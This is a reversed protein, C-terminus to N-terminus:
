TTLHLHLMGMAISARVTLVPGTAELAASTWYGGERTTFGDATQLYGLTTEAFIRAATTAPVSLDVSTMGASLRVKGDRRLAGGFDCKFTAAGGDLTMEAFNANALGQLEIAGAGADVDLLEMLQPNPELFRVAHRGAGIKMSIRSLPLGGLDIDTESAGTEITLAYPQASGLSLDFSPTGRPWSTLAGLHPDQTIRATAGDQVIRCPMSSTPDVYSGTVWLTGGPRVTLKCAGVRIHLHQDAAQAYPIAIDTREVRENSM